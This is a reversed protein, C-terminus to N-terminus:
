DRAGPGRWVTRWGLIPYAVWQLVTEWWFAPQPGPRVGEGHCLGCTLYPLVATVGLGHCARCASVGPPHRGDLVERVTIRESV